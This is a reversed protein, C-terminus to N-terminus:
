NVMDNIPSVILTGPQEHGLLVQELLGHATGDFIRIKLGPFQQALKLMDRVKTEMGGTVDVGESGVLAKEIQAITNPTILPVCHGNGDLVGEVEGLLLIQSVSIHQVLFFFISETSLITGGLVNDLSVDGYVLPVLGHELAAKISDIAMEQIIGASSITSASPQIRWVPIGAYHLERGVLYNLEAAITAVEAFGNWQEASQVGHITDYKKAAFHGFSGSGHGVLIADQQHALASKIEQAIRAMVPQRFSAEVRKDTILSGGLKIMTIM